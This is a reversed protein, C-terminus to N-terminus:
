QACRFHLQASAPRGIIGNIQDLKITETTKNQKACFANAEEYIVAVAQVPPGGGFQGSRRGAYYEDKGTPIIGTSSFCATLLLASLPFLKKM